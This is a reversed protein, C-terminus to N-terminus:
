QAPPAPPTPLTYGYATYIVNAVGILDNQVDAATTPDKLLSNVLALIFTLAISVWTPLGAM